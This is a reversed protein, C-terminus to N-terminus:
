PLGLSSAKFVLFVTMQPWVTACLCPLSVTAVRFYGWQKPGSPAFVVVVFAIYAAGVVQEGAAKHPRIPANVNCVADAIRGLVM